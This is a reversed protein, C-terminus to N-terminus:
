EAQNVFYIDKPAARRTLGDIIAILRVRYRGTREILTSPIDYIADKGDPTATWVQDDFYPSSVHLELTTAAALTINTKFRLKYSTLIFYM